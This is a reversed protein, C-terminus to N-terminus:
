LVVLGNSSVNAFYVSSCYDLHPLVFLKFLIAIFKTKCVFMARSILHCKFNVKRKTEAEHKEFSLHRDM